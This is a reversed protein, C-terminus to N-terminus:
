KIILGYIMWILFILICGIGLFSKVSFKKRYISGLFLVIIGLFLVLSTYDPIITNQVLSLLITIVSIGMLVCGLIIIYTNVKQLKKM